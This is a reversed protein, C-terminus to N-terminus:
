LLATVATNTMTEINFDNVNHCPLTSQYLLQYKVQFESRDIVDFQTVKNRYFGRCISNQGKPCFAQSPPFSQLSILQFLILFHFKAYKSLWLLTTFIKMDSHSNGSWEISNGTKHRKTVLKHSFQTQLSGLCRSHFHWGQM